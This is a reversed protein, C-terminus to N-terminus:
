LGHNLKNMTLQVGVHAAFWLVYAQDGELSFRSYYVRINSIYIMLM